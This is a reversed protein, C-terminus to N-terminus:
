KKLGTKLGAQTLIKSVGLIYKLYWKSYKVGYDKDVQKSIRKLDRLKIQEDDALLTKITYVLIRGNARGTSIIKIDDNKLYEKQWDCLKINFATEIKEIVEDTIQM